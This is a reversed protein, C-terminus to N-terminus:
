GWRLQFEVALEASPLELYVGGQHDNSEDERWDDTREGLWDVVDDDLHRWVLNPGEREEILLRHGAPFFTFPRPGHTNFAIM